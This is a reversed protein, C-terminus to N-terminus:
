ISSVCSAGLERSGSPSSWHRRAQKNVGNAELLLCMQVQEKPLSRVEAEELYGAWGLSVSEVPAPTM